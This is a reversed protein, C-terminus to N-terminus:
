EECNATHQHYDEPDHSKSNAVNGQKATLIVRGRFWKPDEDGQHSSQREHGEADHQGYCADEEHNAQNGGDLGELTYVEAIGPQTVEDVLGQFM